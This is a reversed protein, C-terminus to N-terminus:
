EGRPYLGEIYVAGTSPAASYKVYFQTGIPFVMVSNSNFAPYDSSLDYLLFSAAPVFLQDHTGDLSFLMDKDTNNVIRFAHWRNTTASGLATYSGTISGFAVTRLTDFQAVAM